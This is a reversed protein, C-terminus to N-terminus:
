NSHKFHLEVNGCIRKIDPLSEEPVIVTIATTTDSFPASLYDTFGGKELEALFKDVKYNDCVIGARKM